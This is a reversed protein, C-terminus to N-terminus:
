ELKLILDNNDPEKIIEKTEKYTEKIKELQSNTNQLHDYDRKLRGLKDELDNKEEKM